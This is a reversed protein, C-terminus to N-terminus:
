EASEDENEEKKPKIIFNYTTPVAGKVDVEQKDRWLKPHRNKLWFIAAATDPPYHKTIDTLTISGQYNSIHVDPHSYGLARQRLSVAVDADSIEKGKRISESFRPHDLKWKHFTSEAVGFVEAMQKDILGLLSCRYVMAIYEDKYDTPRGGKNTEKEDVM